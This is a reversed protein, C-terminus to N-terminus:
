PGWARKFFASMEGRTVTDDPCFHDNAPPNCGLTIKAEAIRNIHEEFPSNNDDKFYDINTPPLNLARVLFVAMQERPLNLHGCYKTGGCGVSIGAEFMRNAGGEWFKGDDDTFYDSSPVPLKMVRSIFIGMEGRTVKGNPCFLTNNPPNCGVTIDEEYLWEIADEFINGEVDTFPVPPDTVSIIYPSVRVSSNSSGIADYNFGYSNLISRIETGNLDASLLEGESKGHFRVMVGPPGALVEADYVKDWGLSTAMDANTVQVTWRALPNTSPDASWPDEVSRLWPRPTGSWVDENGESAGGNSSSYFTEVINFALWSAPHKLVDDASEDVATTWDLGGNAPNEKSWGSFVQDSSTDRLHCGCLGEWFANGNRSIASAVAYSRGVIAQATLVESHWSSPVEALGYLYQELPLALVVHFGSASSVMYLTGHAYERGAAAIRTGTTDPQTVKADCGGWGWNEGGEGSGRRVRCRIPDEPNEPNLDVEFFWPDAFNMLEVVGSCDSPQCITVGDDGVVGLTVTSTDPVLGIRLGETENTWHKSPLADVYSDASYYFRLIEEADKGAEAQGKAGYQSLGVGHGWGGGDFTWPDDPGAAVPLAIPLIAALVLLFTTWRRTPM